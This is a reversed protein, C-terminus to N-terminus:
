GGIENGLELRLLRLCQGAVSNDGLGAKGTRVPYAAELVHEARNIGLVAPQLREGADGAIHLLAPQQLLAGLLRELGHQGHRLREGTGVASGARGARGGTSRRKARALDGPAHCLCRAAHQATLTDHQQRNVSLGLAQAWHHAHPPGQLVFLLPVGLRTLEAQAVVQGRLEDRPQPRALDDDAVERLGRQTPQRCMPHGLDEDGRQAKSRVESSDERHVVAPRGGVDEGGGLKGQDARSGMQRGQHQLPVPEVLLTLRSPDTLQRQLLGGM